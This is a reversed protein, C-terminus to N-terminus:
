SAINESVIYIFYASLETERRIRKRRCLSQDQHFQESGRRTAANAAHVPPWIYRDIAINDASKLLPVADIAIM